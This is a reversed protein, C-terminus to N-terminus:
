KGVIPNIIVFSEGKLTYLVGNSQMGSCFWLKGAKDKYITEVFDSPLGDRMTYNILEEGDFKWLGSDVTGFWMNGENDQEISWVRSLTGPEDYGPNSSVLDKNATFNTYKVGDYKYLGGGNSGFWYDGEKDQFISRITGVGFNNPNHYEFTKGDYGVVGRNFTGIWLKGSDEQYITIGSYPYHYPLDIRDQKYSVDKEPIPIALYDLEVQDYKLIGDNYIPFWLSEKNLSWESTSPLSTVASQSNGSWEEKTPITTFSHGDFYCIGKGTSLWINGNEDEQIKRVANNPLGEAETFYTFSEGDYKCIGEEKSGFWFNRKSDEFISIIGKEFKLKLITSEQVVTIQTAPKEANTQSSCNCSIILLTILWYKMLKHGRTELNM